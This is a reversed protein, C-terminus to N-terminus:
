KARSIQRIPRLVVHLPLKLLARLHSQQRGLQLGQLHLRWTNGWQGQLTCRYAWHLLVESMKDKLLARQSRNLDPYSLILRLASLESPAHAATTHTAEFSINEDHLLYRIQPQRLCAFRMSRSLRVWYEYDESIRLSETMLPMPSLRRLVVTSLNFYCGYQLLHDFFNAGFVLHSDNAQEVPAQTLKYQFNPGMYDVERGNHEYRAAGFVLGLKTYARFLEAAAALHGPLFQDDSDLLAILEGQAHELGTNRAGAPGKAHVNTMGCVAKGAYHEDLWELTGDTSHDDVVLVEVDVGEQSLASDIAAALLHRRNYTPIIVTVTMQSPRSAAALM